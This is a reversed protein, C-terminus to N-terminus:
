RSRAFHREGFERRERALVPQRDRDIEAAARQGIQRL